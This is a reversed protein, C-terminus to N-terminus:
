HHDHHHKPMGEPMRKQWDALLVSLLRGLEEQEQATLASLAEDPTITGHHLIFGCKQLMGLPGAPMKPETQEMGFRARGRDCRLADVPCHNGCQDCYQQSM